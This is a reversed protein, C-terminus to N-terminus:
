RKRGYMADYKATFEAVLKPYRQEIMEELVLCYDLGEEDCGVKLADCHQPLVNTSVRSNRGRARRARGDGADLTSVREPAKRSGKAPIPRDTTPSVSSPQAPEQRAQPAPKSPPAVPAGGDLDIDDDDLPRFKPKTAAQAQKALDKLEM